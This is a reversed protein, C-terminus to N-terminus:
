SNKRRLCGLVHHPIRVFEYKGDGWKMPKRFKLGYIIQPVVKKLVDETKIGKQIKTIYVYNEVIKVDELTSGNSKL